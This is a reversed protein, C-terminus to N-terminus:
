ALNLLVDETGTSGRLCVLCVAIGILAAVFWSHAPTYYYASISTKFCGPHVKGREFALSVGLGVVLAIMALRLYRWTKVADAPAPDAVAAAPSSPSEPSM